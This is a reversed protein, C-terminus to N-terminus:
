GTGFLEFDEFALFLFSFPLSLIPFPVFCNILLNNLDLAPRWFVQSTILKCSPFFVYLSIIVLLSLYLVSQM